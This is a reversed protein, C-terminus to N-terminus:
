QSGSLNFYCPSSDKELHWNLKSHCSPCVEIPIGLTNIRDKQKQTLYICHGLRVKGHLPNNDKTPHQSKWQELVNLLSDTDQRSRKM